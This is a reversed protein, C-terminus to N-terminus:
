SEELWTRSVTLVEVDPHSWVFRELKDLVEAVQGAEGGVAAFGLLARQWQDQYGVEAAAVRFRARAAELLPRVAARKAKLSTAAPVHLEVSLACAHVAV